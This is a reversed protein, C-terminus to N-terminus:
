LDNSISSLDIELEKSVKLSQQEQYNKIVGTGLNRSKILHGMVQVMVKQIMVLVPLIGLVILYAQTLLWIWTWQILFKITIEALLLPYNNKWELLVIIVIDKFNQFIEALRVLFTTTQIDTAIQDEEEEKEAEKEDEEEKKKRNEEELVATDDM